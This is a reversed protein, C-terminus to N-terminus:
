KNYIKYTFSIMRTIIRADSAVGCELGYFWLPVTIYGGDLGILQTKLRNYFDNM